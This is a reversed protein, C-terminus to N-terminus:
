PHSQPLPSVCYYGTITGLYRGQSPRMFPSPCRVQADPTPCSWVVSAHGGWLPLLALPGAPHTLYRQWATAPGKNSDDAVRVTCVVADQGYGWGWMGLGALRRVASAGGDAGVVLRARVTKTEGPAGAASGTSTAGTTTITAHAPGLAHAATPAPLDLATVTAHFLLDVDATQGLAEYVAAQVTSDEAISRIPRM